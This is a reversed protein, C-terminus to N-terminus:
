PLERYVRDSRTQGGQSDAMAAPPRTRGEVHLFSEMPATGYCCAQPENVTVKMAARQKGYTDSAYQGRRDSHCILSEAPRRRQAARMAAALPPEARMPDRMFWGVIKRTALDLVAALRL